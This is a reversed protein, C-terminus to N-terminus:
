VVRGSDRSIQFIQPFVLWATRDVPSVQPVVESHHDDDYTQCSHDAHPYHCEVSHASLPRAPHDNAGVLWKM